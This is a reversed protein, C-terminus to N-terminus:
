EGDEEEEEDELVKELEELEPELDCHVLILTLNSIVASLFCRWQEIQEQTQGCALASAVAAAMMPVTTICQRGKKELGAEGKGKIKHWLTGNQYFCFLSREARRKIRRRKVTTFVFDM